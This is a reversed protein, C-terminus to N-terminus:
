YRKKEQTLFDLPKWLFIYIHSKGTINEGMQEMIRRKLVAKHELRRRYEHSVREPNFGGSHSYISQKIIDITRLTVPSHVDQSSPSDSHKANVRRRKAENM